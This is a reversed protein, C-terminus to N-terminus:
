FMHTSLGLKGAWRFKNHVSRMFTMRHCSRAIKVVVGNMSEDLYCTYFRPNGLYSIRQLCHIMLHHKPVAWGGARFFMSCHRLYADMLRQQDAATMLRPSERIIQNVQQAAKGSLLLFRGEEASLHHQHAEVLGVCFDLLHRSESAKCNVVPNWEKGLMKITLNWVQSAKKRWTPDARQMSKYHLWLDSRLRLLKLHIRDAEYLNGQNLPAYADSRLIAWLVKGNYKPIGGLHWAHLIDIAYSEMGVGPINMLPSHHLLKATKPNDLRWFLCKFPTAQREFDAVDRLTRSPHLRDGIRLRQGSELVVHHVLRRGLFGNQKRRDYELSDHRMISRVDASTIDVIITCEQVLQRYQDTTFASAPGDDLSVNDMMALDKKCISCVCCPNVAHSSARFGMPGTYGPMDARIECVALVLGMPLGARARQESGVPFQEQLHSVVSWRGDAASQLDNLIADHVPWITCFGRCGCACFEAKRIVAILFRHGTDLDNVFLGEFSENKTFGAADMFIGLRRIRTPHVGSELALKCVANDRQAPTWEETPPLEPASPLPRALDGADAPGCHGLFHESLAESPRVIPILVTSRCANKKDLMPAEVLTLNSEGYERALALKVVSNHNHDNPDPTRAIDELGTGGNLCHHHAITCLTRSSISESIYLGM